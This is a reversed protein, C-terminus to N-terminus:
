TALCSIQSQYQQIKVHMNITGELEVELGNKLMVLGNSKAVNLGICTTYSSNLYCYNAAINILVHADMGFVKGQSKKTLDVISNVINLIILKCKQSDDM